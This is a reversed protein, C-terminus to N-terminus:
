ILKNLVEYTNNFWNTDGLQGTPIKTFDIRSSYLALNHIYADNCNAYQEYHNPLPVMLVPKKHLIAESTTEFGGSCIVAKCVRMRNMFLKGDLGHVTVNDCSEFPKTLKTFCEVKVNPYRKAEDILQPLMDENMLYVLVFDEVANSLEYSERRLIPPCAIVKNDTFKYYSLAVKQSQISTISNLIRIFLKQFTFGEISPYMPLTMAYQHAISIYKIRKSFFLASLGVLPDYHNIITDPKQKRITNCIKIFSLFLQPFIIINRLVTKWIIVRSKNDFVFDFGDFEVINSFEDTFFKPFGKNKKAAFIGMVDYKKSELYQKVAISQILHGNGVSCASIFVKM